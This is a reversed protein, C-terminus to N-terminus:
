CSIIAQAIKFDIDEDIDVSRNRPMISAFSPEIITKSQNLLQKVEWIYIAGNLRYEKELDQSRSGQSKIFGNMSLSEDLRNCWATPHDVECVSLVSSARKAIYLDYASKIDDENRLPSTPQLLVVDNFYIGENHYWELTHKVVDISGATDSSLIAPRIFPISAGFSKAIDSIEQSDTNVIIEDFIQSNRAAEITWAILPKGALPLINKRPLRKSGGRAPIIALVKRCNTM